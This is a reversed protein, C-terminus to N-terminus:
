KPFYRKLAMDDVWVTGADESLIRYDMWSYDGTNFVFSFERWDYTGADIAKRKAWALDVTIEFARTGARDTKLWCSAVYDTNKLLGTVRQSMSGYLQAVFAANNTIRFSKSGSHRVQSDIDGRVDAIDMVQVQSGIRSAWFVGLTGRTFPDDTEYYGTGWHTFGEEFGGNKLLNDPDETATPPPLTVIPTLPPSPRNFVAILGTVAVILAAIASIIAPTTEWWNKQVNPVRKQRM